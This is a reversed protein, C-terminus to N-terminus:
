PKAPNSGGCNTICDPNGGTNNGGCNSTCTTTGGQTTTTVTVTTTPGPAGQTTTTVTATAGPAGNTGNAGNAGAPGQGGQPGAPGQAGQPGPTGAKNKLADIQAQLGGILNALATLDIIHKIRVQKKKCPQGTKVAHIVGNQTSICFPGFKANHQVGPIVNATAATVGILLVCLLVVFMTIRRGM